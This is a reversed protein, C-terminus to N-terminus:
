EYVVFGAAPLRLHVAKGNRAEVAVTRGIEVDDTSYACQLADGARHLGDDITVWASRPSHADTNIALLVETEDIIRSWPVVARIEHGVLRPVGFDTGNGSIERLFQRGRRLALTRRRLRLVKSLERFVPRDERFFHRGRSQFAGYEGGFMTERLFQDSRGSGNFAQETGYYLCPIGLTTANLALASLVQREADRDACFRAKNEGKRVQDHDDFM